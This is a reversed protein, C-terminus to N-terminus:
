QTAWRQHQDSARARAEGDPTARVLVVTHQSLGGRSPDDYGVSDVQLDVLRLHHLRRLQDSFGFWPAGAAPDGVGDALDQLRLVGRDDALHIICRLLMIDDM